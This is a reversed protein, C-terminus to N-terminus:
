PLVEPARKKLTFALGMDTDEDCIRDAGLYMQPTSLPVKNEAAFHLHLNLRKKTKTTDACAIVDAGFHESLRAKLRKAGAQGAERLEDQQSFVWALASAPESACLLVRSVLCAGPHLPEGLMWNCESDLPFLVVQADLRSLVGEGELREHFGRCTPCLPDEFFLAARKPEAGRLPLLAHKPEPLVELAGCGGLLESHDPASQAYTLPPLLTMAGLGVLWATVRLGAAGGLAPERPAREDGTLLLAGSVALLASAVYIGVCTMCLAHLKTLSITLMLLSVLLPTISTWGFFRREALTAREERAFLYGGFVLFFGFAGLAFLGIPIGGWLATRFLASYPSYMAARCGESKEGSVAGLSIGCHLDHIDRDLHAAYDLSSLAAFAVGLLSGLVAVVSAIRLRSRLMEHRAIQSKDIFSALRM